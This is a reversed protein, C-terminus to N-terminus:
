SRGLRDNGFHLSDCIGKREGTRQICRMEELRSEISKIQRRLRRDKALKDPLAALQKCVASGSGITLLHGHRKHRLNYYVTYATSLSQM